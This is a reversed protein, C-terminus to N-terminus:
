FKCKKLKAFKILKKEIVFFIFQKSLKAATQNFM